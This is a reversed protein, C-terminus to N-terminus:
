VRSLSATAALLFEEKAADRMAGHLATTRMRVNAKRVGRCTVCAHWADIMVGCGIPQMVDQFADAIEQTLNEQIQPRRSLVEVLRPIKSLGIIHEYPIYSFHVTGCFPMFHHMCMSDFDIGAVHVMQDFFHSTVTCGAFVSDDMKVNSFKTGLVSKPDVGVGSFLDKYAACLRTPTNHTHPDGGYGLDILLDTYADVLQKQTDITILPQTREM